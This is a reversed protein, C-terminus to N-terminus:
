RLSAQNLYSVNNLFLADAQQPTEIPTIEHHKRKERRNSAEKPQTDSEEM